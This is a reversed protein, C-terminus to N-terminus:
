PKAKSPWLGVRNVPEAIGDEVAVCHVLAWEKLMRNGAAIAERHENIVFLYMRLPKNQTYSRWLRGACQMPFRMSVNAGTEADIVQAFGHNREFNKQPRLRVRWAKASDTSAAAGGAVAVASVGLGGIMERRNM